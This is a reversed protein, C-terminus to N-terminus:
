LLHHLLELQPLGHARRRLGVPQADLLHPLHLRLPVALARHEVRDAVRQAVGVAAGEEVVPGVVADDQAEHDPQVVFVRVQGGVLLELAVLRVGGDSLEELAAGAQGISGAGDVLAAVLGDGFQAEGAARQDAARGAKDVHGLDLARVGRHLRAHQRRLSNKCLQRLLGLAHHLHLLVVGVHPLRPHRVLQEPLAVDLGAEVPPQERAQEVGGQLRVDHLRQQQRGPGEAVLRVVLGRLGGGVVAGDLVGLGIALDGKVEGGAHEAGARQVVVVLGHVQPQAVGADRVHDVQRHVRARLRAEARCAHVLVHVSIVAAALLAQVDVRLVAHVALCAVDLVGRLVDMPSRGLAAAARRVSGHSGLSGRLGATKPHSSAQRASSAIGSATTM